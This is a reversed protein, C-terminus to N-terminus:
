YEEPWPNDFLMPEPPNLIADTARDVQREAEKAQRLVGSSKGEKFYRNQLARMERVLEAYMSLRGKWYFPEGELETATPPNHLTEMVAEFIQRDAEKDAESLYEYPVLWSPKPNPQTMAWRIWADRVVRGYFDRLNM